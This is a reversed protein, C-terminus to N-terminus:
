TRRLLLNTRRLPATIRWSTSSRLASVQAEAKKRRSSEDALHKQTKVLQRTLIAVEDSSRAAQIRLGKAEAELHRLRDAQEEVAAEADARSRDLDRIRDQAEALTRSVKDREPELAGLKTRLEAVQQELAAKDKSAGDLDARLRGGEREFEGACAVLRLALDVIPGLVPTAAELQAAVADLRAHDVEVEGSEAWTDLIARVEELWPDLAGAPAASDRERRHHRLDPSLFRSVEAQARDPSKPWRIGLGETIRGVTQRWDRLLGEYSVFVRSLGRTAREADLVHRLWLLRGIEPPLGDRRQLSQSVEAPDRHTHVVVPAYGVGALASRWFPFLRCIRPDKLLALRSQGWEGSLVEHARDLMTEAAFSDLWGRDFPCWDSWSSSASRLIADNLRCVEVSEFHGVPNNRTAPMLNQPLEAGMIHLVGAM